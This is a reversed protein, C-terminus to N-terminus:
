VPSIKSTDMNYDENSFAHREKTVYQKPKAILVIGCLSCVKEKKIFNKLPLNQWRPAIENKGHKWQHLM